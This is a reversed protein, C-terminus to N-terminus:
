VPLRIRFETGREHSEVTISGKHSVIIKHVIALGLGTGGDKTTYFPLFIKDIINNPIGHGSDAVTIYASDQGSSFEFHLEGGNPMADIANQILNSFAQRLLIEDGNIQRIKEGGYYVKINDKGGVINEICRKILGALDVRSINLETPRAFFLFDTIVRDMVAVERSVADLVHTMSPDANKSLLKMYGAIVGMPNRLEHAMGAAMEGLSSLRNRLEAQSELAKLETIDTFVMLKGIIENAANYLPTVTIGLRINKGSKTAYQTERREIASGDRIFGSIPETFAEDCGMGTVNGSRIGLIKEAASNIKTIKGDSNISVVGSPVSQLIYENYSEMVDAREEARNRLTELEREKDKLKAILDHFTDVIFEVRSEETNKLANRKKQMRTIVCFISFLAIILLSLIVSILFIDEKM